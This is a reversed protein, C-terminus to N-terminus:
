YKFTFIQIIFNPSITRLNLDRCKRLCHSFVTDLECVRISNILLLMNLECVRINNIRIPMDLECVRVSNIPLLMDLECIRISNVFLLMDLECVYISNIPHQMNLESGVSIILLLLIKIRVYHFLSQKLLACYSM